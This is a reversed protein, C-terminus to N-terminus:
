QKNRALTASFAFLYESSKGLNLTDLKLTSFIRKGRDEHLLNSLLTGFSLADVANGSFSVTKNDPLTINTLMVGSPSNEDLFQIIESARAPESLIKTVVSLKTKLAYIAAERDRESNIKEELIIISSNIQEEDSRIKIQIVLLIILILSLTILILTSGTALWKKTKLQSESELEVRPLLNIGRRRM